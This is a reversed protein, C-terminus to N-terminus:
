PDYTTRTSRKNQEAIHLNWKQRVPRHTEVKEEQKEEEEEDEEEEDERGSGGGRRM